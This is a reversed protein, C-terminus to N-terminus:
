KKLKEYDKKSIKYYQSIQDYTMGEQVKKKATEWKPSKEDLVPLVITESRIRLADTIEGFAEIGKEVYLTVELDVWDEIFSSQCIRSIRKANTSNILMPKIPEKFYAVVKTTNSKLGKTEERRAEAITYNRDKYDPLDWAGLYPSKEGSKWHTKSM